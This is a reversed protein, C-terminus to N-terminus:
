FEAEKLRMLVNREIITPLVHDTNSDVLVRCGCQQSTFHRRCGWTWSWTDGDLLRLDLCLLGQPSLDLGEEVGHASPPSRLDRQFVTAGSQSQRQLDVISDRLM